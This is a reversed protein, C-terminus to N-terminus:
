RALVLEHVDDRKLIHVFPVETANATPKFMAIMDKGALLVRYGVFPLEVDKEGKIEEVTPLTTTAISIDREAQLRGEGIAAFYATTALGVLVLYTILEVWDQWRGLLRKSASAGGALWFIAVFYAIALAISDTLARVGRYLLHEPAIDLFQYRLGFASYYTDTTVIGAFLVLSSVLLLQEKLATAIGQQATSPESM